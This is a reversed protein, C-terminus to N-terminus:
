NEKSIKRAKIAMLIITIINATIMATVKIERGYDFM